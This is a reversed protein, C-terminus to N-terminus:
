IFISDVSNLQPEAKRHAKLLDNRSHQDNITGGEKVSSKRKKKWLDLKREDETAKADTSKPKDKHV